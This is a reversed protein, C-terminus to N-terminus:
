QAESLTSVVETLECSQEEEAYSYLSVNIRGGAYRVRLVVGALKLPRGM